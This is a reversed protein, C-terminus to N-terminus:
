APIEEMLALEWSKWVLTILRLKGAARAEAVWEDDAYQQLQTAAEDALVRIDSEKAGAKAYKVELLF